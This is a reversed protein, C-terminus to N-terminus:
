KTTDTYTKAADKAAKESDKRSKLRDAYPLDAEFSSIPISCVGVGSGTYGGSACCQNKFSAISDIFGAGCQDMMEAMSKDDTTRPPRKGSYASLKMSAIAADQQNKKNEVTLRDLKQKLLVQANQKDAQIKQYDRALKKIEADAAAALKVIQKNLEEDALRKEEAIQGLVNDYTQLKSKIALLESTFTNEVRKQKKRETNMCANYRNQMKAAIAKGQAFAGAFSAQVTASPQPSAKQKAPDNGVAIESCRDHLAFDSNEALAVVKADIMDNYKRRLEGIQDLMTNYKSDAQMKIKIKESSLRDKSEETEGPIAELRDAIEGEQQAWEKLQDAYETQATEAAEMNEKIKDQLTTVKDQLKEEQAFFDSKSLYCGPKDNMTTYMSLMADAGNVSSLLPRAMELEESQGIGGGSKACARATKMDLKKCANIDDRSAEYMADCTDKLKQNSQSEPIQFVKNIDNIEQDINEKCAKDKEGCKKRNNELERVLKSACDRRAMDDPVPDSFGGGPLARGPISAKTCETRKEAMTQSAALGEIM